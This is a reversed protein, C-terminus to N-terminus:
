EQRAEAAIQRKEWQKRRIEMIVFSFGDKAMRGCLVFGCKQFSRHARTNWDLSKLYIRNLKTQCFIYKVMTNVADTGYGEGWYDRNGITIGLEAEGRTEDIDYYGLNGIHKGGRTDIAFQRKAPYSGRLENTYDLLFQPFSSTLQPAADLRALEPDTKWAYDDRADTLKKDRLVIKKGTVM